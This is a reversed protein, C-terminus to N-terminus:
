IKSILMALEGWSDEIWELLQVLFMSNRILSSLELTHVDFHTSEEDYYM